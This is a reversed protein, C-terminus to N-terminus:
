TESSKARNKKPQMDWIKQQDPTLLGRIDDKMALRIKRAMAAQEPGDNETVLETGAIFVDLAASKQAPTLHVLKDLQDVLDWPSRGIRGGGFKQAILNFKARQGPTLLARVQELYRQRVAAVAGHPPVYGLANLEVKENIFLIAIKDTQETTLDIADKLWQARLEGTIEPRAHVITSGVGGVFVPDSAKSSVAMGLLVACGSLISAHIKM